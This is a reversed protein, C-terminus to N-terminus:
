SQVSHVLTYFISRQVGFFHGFVLSKFSKFCVPM